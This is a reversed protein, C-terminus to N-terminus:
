GNHVHLPLPSVSVPLFTVAYAVSSDVVLTFKQPGSGSFDISNAISWSDVYVPAATRNTLVTILTRSDQLVVTGFNLTAPSCAVQGRVVFPCLSVMVFVSLRLFRM